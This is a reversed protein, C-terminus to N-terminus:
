SVSWASGAHLCGHWSRSLRLLKRVVARTMPTSYRAPITTPMVPFMSTWDMRPAGSGREATAAFLMSSAMPAISQNIATAPSAAWPTKINGTRFGCLSRM